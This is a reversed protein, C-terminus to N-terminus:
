SSRCGDKGDDTASRPPVPIQFSTPLLSASLFNELCWAILGMWSALPVYM